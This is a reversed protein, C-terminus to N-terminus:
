IQKTGGNQFTGDGRGLLVNSYFTNTCDGYIPYGDINFLNHKPKQCTQVVGTVLLDLKGDGNADDVTLSLPMQGKPLKFTNPAQFTGEGKGLLVSLDNANLTVVDLKGDNNFDGVALDRPQFGTASFLPAQYTGNSNGLAVSVTNTNSSVDALDLIGDSNFDALVAPVARAELAEVSLRIAAPKRRAPTGPPKCRSRRCLSYWMQM